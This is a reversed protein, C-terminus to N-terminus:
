TTEGLKNIRYVIVDGKEGAVEGILKFKSPSPIAKTRILISADYRRMLNWLIDEELNDINGRAQDREIYLSSYRSYWAEYFQENFPFDKSVVVARKSLLRIKQNNAGHLESVIVEDAATNELLWQYVPPEQKLNPINLDFRVFALGLAVLAIPALFIVPQPNQTLKNIWTHIRHNTTTLLKHQRTFLFILILSIPIMVLPLMLEHHNPFVFWTLGVQKYPLYPIFTALFAIFYKRKFLEYSFLSWIQVMIPVIIPFARMPIFSVMFRTPWVEIFLFGLLTLTIAYGYITITLRRLSSPIDLKFLLVLSLALMLGTSLWKEMDMHGLLFHHAHRYLGNIEAFRADDLVKDFSLYLALFACCFIGSAIYIPVSKFLPWLAAWGHYSIFILLCLIVGHVGVLPHFVVAGTMLMLASAVNKRIVMGWAFISFTLAVNSATFDFTVPWWAPLFPVSLFSLASLAFAILAVQHNALQKFLWYLGIAYVWIRVINGYAVVYTYHIDLLQSTYAICSALILRPSFADFTNTYFDNPLFEPNLLREILPFSDVVPYQWAVQFFLGMFLTLMVICASHLSTEWKSQPLTFVSKQTLEM